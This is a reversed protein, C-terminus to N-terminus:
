SDGPMAVPAFYIASSSRREFGLVCFAPRVSSPQSGWIERRSVREGWRGWGANVSQEEKVAGELLWDHEM